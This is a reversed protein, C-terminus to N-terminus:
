AHATDRDFGRRVREILPTEVPYLERRRHEGIQRAVVQVVMLRHVRVELRFRAEHRQERAVTREDDVRVIQAVEPRPELRCRLM